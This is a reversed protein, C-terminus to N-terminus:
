VTTNITAGHRRVRVIAAAPSVVNILPGEHSITPRIIPLSGVSLTCNDKNVNAM